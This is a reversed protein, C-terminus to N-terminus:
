PAAVVVKEPASVNAAPFTVHAVAEADMKPQREVPSQVEKVLM